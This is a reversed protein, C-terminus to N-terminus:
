VGSSQIKISCVNTYNDKINIARIHYNKERLISSKHWEYYNMVAVNHIQGVMFGIAMSWPSFSFDRDNIDFTIIM